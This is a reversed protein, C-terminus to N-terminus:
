QSYVLAFSCVLAASINTIGESRARSLRIAHPTPLLGFITCKFLELLDHFQGHIDGVLTVPAGVHVVNPQTGRGFPSILPTHRCSNPMSNSLPHCRSCIASRQNQVQVEQVLLERLKTCLFKTAAVSLVLGKRARDLIYDIDM